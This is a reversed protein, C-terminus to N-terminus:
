KLFVIVKRAAFLFLIFILSVKLVFECISRDKDWKRIMVGMEIFKQLVVSDNAFYALNYAVPRFPMMNKETSDDLEALSDEEAEPREDSKNINNMAVMETKFKNKKFEIFKEKFSEKRENM